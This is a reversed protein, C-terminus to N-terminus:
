VFSDSTLTAYHAFMIIHGSMATFMHQTLCAEPMTLFYTLFYVIPVISLILVAYDSSFSNLNVAQQVHVPTLDANQLRLHEIHLCDASLHHCM